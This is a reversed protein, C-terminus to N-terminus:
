DMKVLLTEYKMTLKEIFEDAAAFKCAEINRRRLM